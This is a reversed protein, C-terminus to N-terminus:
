RGVQRNTQGDTKKQTNTGRNTETDILSRMQTSHHVKVM